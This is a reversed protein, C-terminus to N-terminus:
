KGCQAKTDSGLHTFTSTFEPADTEKFPRMPYGLLDAVHTQTKQSGVEFIKITKDSSCTALRKGYFDM